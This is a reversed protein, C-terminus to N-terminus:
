RGAGVDADKIEYALVLKRVDIGVDVDYNEICLQVSGGQNRNAHKFGASPYSGLGATRATSGLPLSAKVTGSEASTANDFRPSAWLVADGEYSNREIQATASVAQLIRFTDGASLVAPSSVSYHIGGVAYTWEAALGTLASDLTITDATNSAVRRLYGDGTAPNVIYIPTGALSGGSGNTFFTAGSVSFTLTPTTVTTITGANSLAPMTGDLCLAGDSTGLDAVCLYGTPDVFYLYTTETADQIGSAVCAHTARIGDYRSFGKLGDRSFQYVLVIDLTASAGSPLFFWAQRKEPYYVAKAYPLYTQNVEAWVKEGTAQTVNFVRRDVACMIGEPGAFMAGGPVAILTGPANTGHGYEGEILLFNPFSGWTFLTDRRTVAVLLDSDRVMNQVDGGQPIFVGRWDLLRKASYSANAPQNYESFILWDPQAGLWEGSTTGKGAYFACGSYEAICTCIPPVDRDIRTRPNTVTFISDNALLAEDSTEGDTGVVYGTTGSGSLTVEGDYRPMASEGAVENVITVYVVGTDIGSAAMSATIQPFTIDIHSTALAMTIKWTGINDAASEEESPMGEAETTSNKYAVRVYVIDDVAYRAPAGAGEAVTLDALLPTEIGLTWIAPDGSGDIYLLLPKNVGNVLYAYPGMCMGRWTTSATLSGRLSASIVPLSTGTDYTMAYLDTGSWVLVGRYTTGNKTLRYHFLGSISTGFTSVATGCSVGTFCRAYGERRKLKAAFFPDVNRLDAWAGELTAADQTDNIGVDGPIFVRSKVRNADPM